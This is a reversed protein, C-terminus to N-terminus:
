FATLSAVRSGFFNQPFSAIAGIQEERREVCARIRHTIAVWSEGQRLTDLFCHDYFTYQYDNGCGFSTRDSRAATLIIRNSRRMDPTDVYLGSYCGSTIVVTPRDACGRDLIQNLYGPPLVTNSRKIYLGGNRAGHSTMYVFCGTGAPGALIRTQAALNEITAATERTRADATLVGINAPSVGFGALMRHLAGVANTFVHQTDDGAVLLAKWATPQIAPPGPQQDPGSPVPRLPPAGDRGWPLAKIEPQGIAPGHSWALIMAGLCTALALLRNRGRV